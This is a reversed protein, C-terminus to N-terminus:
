EGFGSSARREGEVGAHLLCIIRLPSRLLFNSMELRYFGGYGVFCCALVDDLSNMCEATKSMAM